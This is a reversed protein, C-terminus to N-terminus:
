AQKEHEYIRHRPRGISRDWRISNCRCPRMGQVYYRVIYILPTSERFPYTTSVCAKKRLREERQEAWYVVQLAASYGIKRAAQEARVADDIDKQATAAALEEVTPPPPPPLLQPPAMVGPQNNNPVDVTPPEEQIDSFHEQGLNDLSQLWNNTVDSQQSMYRM